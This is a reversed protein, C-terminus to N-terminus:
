IKKIEDNFNSFFSKIEEKSSIKNLLSSSNERQTIIEKLSNDYETIKNNLFTDILEKGYLDIINNISQIISKNQVKVEGLSDFAKDSLIEYSNKIKSIIDNINSNKDNLNNKLSDIIGNKIKILQEELLNTLVDYAYITENQSLSKMYDNILQELLAGNMCFTDLM